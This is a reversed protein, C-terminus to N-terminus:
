GSRDTTTEVSQEYLAVTPIGAAGLDVRKGAGSCQLIAGTKGTSLSTSSVPVSYRNTEFIVQSYPTLTVQRTVCCEFQHLPLPRLLTREQLWMQQIPLPQGTVTRLDDELCKQRLQANLDEFSVVKPIPVFFNRRSFGVSAEVGGKDSGKGPTCFYSQFLYYSRFAVFASNEKRVRGAGETMINVATSLNDYSLRQPIGGFHEFAKVHGEFFSAQKQSPFAMIFRRHSYNLFMVFVEVTQSVGGIIAVAEGWDVQGDQGPEFSLPLFLKRSHNQKRWNVAYTNISAESGTYGEARLTEYIRHATYRQKKPMLKNGDLLQDVRQKFPGLVPATRAKQITYCPAEPHALAKTVTQRSVELKIAIQRGSLQENHFLDRIREHLEVAM